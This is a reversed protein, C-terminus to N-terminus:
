FFAAMDHWNVFLVSFFLRNEGRIPLFWVFLVFTKFFLENLIVLIAVEIYEWVKWPNKRHWWYKKCEENLCEFRKRPPYLISPFIFIAKKIVSLYCVWIFSSNKKCVKLVSTAHLCKIKNIHRWDKNTFSVKVCPTYMRLNARLQLYWDRILINSKHM